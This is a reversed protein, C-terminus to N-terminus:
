FVYRWHIGLIAKPTPLNPNDISGGVGIYSSSMGWTLTIAMRSPTAGGTQRERDSKESLAAEGTDNGTYLNFVVEGTKCDLACLCSRSTAVHCLDTEEKQAPTFLTLYINEPDSAFAGGESMLIMATVALSFLSFVRRSMKSGGIM